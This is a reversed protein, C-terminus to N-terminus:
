NGYKNKFFGYYFKYVLAKSLDLICRELYAPKNLTLTVKSKHIGVLDNNLIKRLMYNPRSTWELFDKGDSVLRVDIRNRLERTTKGFVANNM